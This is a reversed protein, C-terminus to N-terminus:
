FKGSVESGSVYGVTVVFNLESVLYYNQVHIM